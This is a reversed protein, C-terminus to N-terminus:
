PQYTIVIRMKQWLDSPGPGLRDADDRLAFYLEIVSRQFDRIAASLHVGTGLEEFEPSWVGVQGGERHVEAQIPQTLRLRPDPLTGVLVERPTASPKARLQAVSAIGVPAAAIRHRESALEAYSAVVSERRTEGGPTVAPRDVVTMEM